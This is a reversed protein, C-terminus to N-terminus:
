LRHLNKMKKGGLIGGESIFKEKGRRKTSSGDELMEGREVLHYFIDRTGKLSLTKVGEKKVRQREGGGALIQSVHDRERAQFKLPPPTKVRSDPKRRTRRVTRTRKWLVETKVLFLYGM